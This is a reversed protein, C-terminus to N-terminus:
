SRDEALKASKATHRYSLQQLSVAPLQTTSCRGRLARLGRLIKLGPDRRAEREKRYHRNNIEQLSVAFRV